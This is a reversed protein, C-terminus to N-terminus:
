SNGNTDDKGDIVSKLLKARNPFQESFTRENKVFVAISEAFDEGNSNEGYKTPSLKGNEFLDEAMATVWLDERSFTRRQTALQKDIYHGAEHCYTRILYDDDHPYDYRYFTIEDGGTAYSHSFDKYTKIWYDDQPNYYDVFIITKQAKDRIKKPVRNWCKIAQEPTMLQQEKVYTEPFVFRTGDPTKYIVANKTEKIGGAGDGFGFMEKTVTCKVGAVTARVTSLDDIGKSTIDVTGANKPLTMWKKKYEEFDKTKDLGFYQARTQLEKLEEEDLVWKARQLMCCRCNCDESPRGFGGPYMAKMGGAEFPEDVERIQGDLM